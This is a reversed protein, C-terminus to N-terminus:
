DYVYSRLVTLEFLLFCFGVWIAEVGLSTTRQKDNKREQKEEDLM